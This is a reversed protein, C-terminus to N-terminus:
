KEKRYGGKREPLFAKAEHLEREIWWLAGQANGPKSKVEQLFAEAEDVKARAADMAREAAEKAQASKKRAEVAQATSTEAARRANTAAVAADAAAQRARDAKKVAAEQTIRAKRLPLTPENLHQALEAKAKNQAVIGSATDIRSQIEKIKQAYADEQAKLDALAVELEQKAQQAEIERKKSEAEQTKAQAEKNRADSEAAEAARLAAAAESAKRESEQFLAQVQELMRQAKEIEEKNDGQPANVVFRWDAKYLAILIHVIPVNSFKETVGSNRLVERMERVTLTEKFHELFRHANLEDLASGGAGNQLDLKDALHKYAWIKEAEKQGFDSWYANLFWISQDNYTKASLQKFKNEDNGTLAM